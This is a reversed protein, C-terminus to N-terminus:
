SKNKDLGNIIWYASTSWIKKAAAREVSVVRGVGGGEILFISVVLYLLRYMMMNCTKLIKRM